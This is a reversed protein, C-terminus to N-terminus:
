KGDLFNNILNEDIIQIKKDRATDFKSGPDKGVLLFDTKESISTSVGRAV